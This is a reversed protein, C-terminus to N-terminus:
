ARILGARARLHGARRGAGSPRRQGARETGTERGRVARHGVRGLAGVVDRHAGRRRGEVRRPRARAGGVWYRAKPNNPPCILTQIHGTNALVFTSDAGLLQASRYCGKWPTLHDTTGGTVYADVKIQSLDVPSGLVTMGGPQALVNTAFMELFQAHLLAPLNTRDANWALIDFPAPKKGMVYDKVWYNAHTM